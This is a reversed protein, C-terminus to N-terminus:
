FKISYWNETNGIEVPNLTGRRNRNVKPENIHQSKWTSLPYPCNLRNTSKARGLLPTIAVKKPQFWSRWKQCLSLAWFSEEMESRGTQAANWFGLGSPWWKKIQDKWMTLVKLSQCSQIVRESMAEKGELM